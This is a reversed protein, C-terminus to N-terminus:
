QWTRLNPLGTLLWVMLLREEPAFTEAVPRGILEEGTCGALKAGAPNASVYTLDTDIVFIADPSVEILDRYKEQSKRLNTYLRANELSIAAQSALLKLVHIRYSTFALTTLNNELYLIGIVRDQRIIPMCLVSKPRRERLYEDDPFLNRASADELMIGEQTRLVHQLISVPAAMQHPLM